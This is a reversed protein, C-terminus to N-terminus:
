CTSDPSNNGTKDLGQFFGSKITIVYTNDGTNSATPTNNALDALYSMGGASELENLLSLAESVTVVDVPKNEEILQNM